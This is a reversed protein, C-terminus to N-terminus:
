ILNPLHFTLRSSEDQEIQDFTIKGKVKDMAVGILYMGLNQQSNSFQSQLSEKNTTPNEKGQREEITLQAGHMDTSITVSCYDDHRGKNQKMSSLLTKGLITEIMKRDSFFPVNEKINWILNMRGVSRM